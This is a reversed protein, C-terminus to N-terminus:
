TSTKGKLKELENILAVTTTESLTSTLQLTLLCGIVQDATQTLITHDSKQKTYEQAFAIANKKLKNITGSNADSSGVIGARAGGMQVVDIQMIHELFQRLDSPESM